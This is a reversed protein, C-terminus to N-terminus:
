AFREMRACSEIQGPEHPDHVRVAAIEDFALIGTGAIDLAGQGTLEVPVIAAPIQLELRGSV